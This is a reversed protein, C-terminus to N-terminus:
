PQSRLHACHTCPCTDVRELRRAALDPSDIIEVHAFNRFQVGYPAKGWRMTNDIEMELVIPQGCADYIHAYGQKETWEILTRAKDAAEATEFYIAHPTSM